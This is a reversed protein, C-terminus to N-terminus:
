KLFWKRFLHPLFLPTNRIASQFAEQASTNGTVADLRARAALKTADAAGDPGRTGCERRTAFSERPEAERTTGHFRWTHRSHHCQTQQREERGGLRKGLTRERHKAERQSAPCRVQKLNCSQLEESFRRGLVCVTGIPRDQGLRVM